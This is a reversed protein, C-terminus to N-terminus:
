SASVIEICKMGNKIGSKQAEYSSSAIESISSDGGQTGQSHCVTVSKGHLHPWSVLGTLIFFCDFNCHIICLDVDGEKEKGKGKSPPKMILEAGKM